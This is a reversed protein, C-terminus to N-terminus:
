LWPGGVSWDLMHAPDGGIGVVFHVGAVWSVAASCSLFLFEEMAVVVIDMM